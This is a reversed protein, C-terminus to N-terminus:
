STPWRASRQGDWHLADRSGLFSIGAQTVTKGLYVYRDVKEIVNGDVTVTSTISTENLMVKTKNLNMSFGVPNSTLHIDTRMSELEEPSKAVLVIDDAFILDSLHEGDINIEKGEWNIQNIIAYQLCATFLKPSINDGKRM